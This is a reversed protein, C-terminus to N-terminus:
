TDMLIQIQNLTQELEGERNVIREDALKAFEMEREIATKREVLGATTGKDRKAIREMLQDVSEAEIFLLTAEPNAEKITRAGAVDVVFLVDNGAVMLDEVDSRRSGYLNGYHEDWEFMAGSDILDQFTKRDLFHYSVGDTEGERIPRTTCTVVKKLNSRRRLLELAVTTKGVGSPGTIIYLKGKM